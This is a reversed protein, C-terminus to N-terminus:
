NLHPEKGHGLNCSWSTGLEIHVRCTFIGPRLIMSLKKGVGRKELSRIFMKKVVGRCRCDVQICRFGGRPLQMRVRLVTDELNEEELLWFNESPVPPPNLAPAPIRPGVIAQHLPDMKKQALCLFCGVHRRRRTEFCESGRTM